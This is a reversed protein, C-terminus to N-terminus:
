IRLHKGRNKNLNENKKEDLDLDVDSARSFVFLFIWMWVDVDVGVSDCFFSRPDMFNSPTSTTRRAQYGMLTAHASARM